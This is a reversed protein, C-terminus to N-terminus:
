VAISFIPQSTRLIARQIHILELLAFVIGVVDNHDTRQSFPIGGSEVDGPIFRYSKMTSVVKSPINGGEVSRNVHYMIQCQGIGIQLVAVDFLIPKVM